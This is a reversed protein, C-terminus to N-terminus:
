EAATSIGKTAAVGTKGSSTQGSITTIMGSYGRYSGQHSGYGPRSSKSVNAGTMTQIKQAVYDVLEQYVLGQTPAQSLFPEKAASLCLFRERPDFQAYVAAFQNARYFRNKYWVLVREDM